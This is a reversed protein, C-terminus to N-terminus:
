VVEEGGFLKPFVKENAIEYPKAVNLGFLPGVKMAIMLGVSGIYALDGPFVINAITALLVYKTTTSPNLTEIGESVKGSMRVLRAFPKMFGSGNGKVLLSSSKVGFKKSLEYAPEVYFVLYWIMSAMIIKSGDEMADLAAEGAIPGLLIGGAFCVMMSSLWLSFPHKRPINKFDEESMDNREWHFKRYHLGFNVVRKHCIRCVPSDKLHFRNQHRELSRVRSFVQGCDGCTFSGRLGEHIEKKHNSLNRENSFDKGCLDCIPFSACLLDKQPVNNLVGVCRSLIDEAHLEEEAVEVDDFDTMSEVSQTM